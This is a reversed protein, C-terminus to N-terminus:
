HEATALASVGNARREDLTAAAATLDLLISMSGQGQELAQTVASRLAQEHGADVILDAIPLEITHEKYRDLRPWPSVPIFEGDVRLHTHGRAGAWKALDTYYGKRAQVLPALIGIHRGSHEQLIRAVIQDPRQPEVPIDCHPCYQ